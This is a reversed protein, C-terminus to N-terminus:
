FAQLDRFVHRIGQPLHLGPQLHRSFGLVHYYVQFLPDTPDLFYTCCYSSNFSGWDGLRVINAKPFLAKVAYPIHGAFGPLVPKMGFARMRALIKHQLALQTTYWSPYPLPGGWGRMNGM